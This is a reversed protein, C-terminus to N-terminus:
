ITSGHKASAPDDASPAVEGPVSRDDSAGDENRSTEGMAEATHAQEVYDNGEQMAINIGHEGPRIRRDQALQQALGRLVTECLKDHYIAARQAIKGLCPQHQGGGHRSCMGHRGQCRKQLLKMSAPCNGMFGTPTKIPQGEITQQGYMCQDCGVQLVGKKCLVERICQEQWSDAHEPHERLFFLGKSVQQLYLECVFALHVMARARSKNLRDLNCRGRKALERNLSQIRRVSEFRAVTDRSDPYFGRIRRLFGSGPIEFCSVLVFVRSAM